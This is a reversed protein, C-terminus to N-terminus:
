VLFQILKIEKYFQFNDIEEIPHLSSYRNYTSCLYHPYQIIRGCQQLILVLARAFSLLFFFLLPISPRLRNEEESM